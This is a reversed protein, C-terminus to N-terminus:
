PDFTVSVLEAGFNRLRDLLGFLEADDRVVASIHTQGLTTTITCEPLAAALIPGFEGRVVIRGKRSPDSALNAWQHPDM